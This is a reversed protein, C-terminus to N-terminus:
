RRFNLGERATMVALSLKWLRIPVIAEASKEYYVKGGRKMSQKWTDM